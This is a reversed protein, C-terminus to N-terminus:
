CRDKLINLKNKLSNKSNYANQYDSPRSEFFNTKDSLAITEMFEFPNNKNYKKTYGLNVLSYDAMFEIYDKMMNTNMGIFKCLIADETFKHAIFVAEDMMEYIENTSLKKELLSYLAYAFTCHQGEDRSILKNSKILGKMFYTGNSRYKKLWFISAFAGSFFIGEVIAFAVLRFRFGKSSEIWKFQWEAMLKVSEVTEIANFLEDRRKKDRVINELMKSYVLSHINEMMMQWAYVVQAEMIQVDNLFRERLNFNVIGDGAAFFALIMEIFHQEQENLKKFDEYDETFDIEEATWFCNQQIHYIDMLKQYKIPFLTFRRNEPNLLPELKDYEDKNSEKEQISSLLFGIMNDIENDNNKNSNDISSEKNNKKLNTLMIIIQNIYDKKTMISSNM